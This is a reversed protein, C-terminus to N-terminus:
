FAHFRKYNVLHISFRKDPNIRDFFGKSDFLIHIHCHQFMANVVSIFFPQRLIFLLLFFLQLVAFSTCKKVLLWQCQPPPPHILQSQLRQICFFLLSLHLFSVEHRRRVDLGHSKTEPYERFVRLKILSISQSM